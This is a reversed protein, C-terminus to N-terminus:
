LPLFDFWIAKIKNQIDSTVEFTGCVIHRSDPNTRINCHHLHILKNVYILLYILIDLTHLLVM